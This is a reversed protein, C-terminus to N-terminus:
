IFLHRYYIMVQHNYSLQQTINQDAHYILHSPLTIVIIIHSLLPPAAYKITVGLTILYSGGGGGGGGSYVVCLGVLMMKFLDCMIKQLIKQNFM